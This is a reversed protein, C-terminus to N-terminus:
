RGRFYPRLHHEIAARPFRVEKGNSSYDLLVDDFLQDVTIKEIQVGHFAGTVVEGIRKKLLREADAYRESKSSERFIQGAASYKIWWHGLEITSGDPLKKKRKFISGLQPKRTM